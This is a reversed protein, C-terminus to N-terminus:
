DKKSEKHSNFCFLNEVARPPCYFRLNLESSVVYRLIFQVVIDTVKRIIWGM